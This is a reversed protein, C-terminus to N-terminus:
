WFMNGYYEMEDFDDNNHNNKRNYNNYNNYNNYIEEKEIKRRGKGLPPNKKKKREIKKMYPWVGLWKDDKKRFISYDNKIWWNKFILIDLIEPPISLNYDDKLKKSLEDIEMYEGYDLNDVVIDHIADRLKRKSDIHMNENIIFDNFNIIM